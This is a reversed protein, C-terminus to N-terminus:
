GFQEGVDVSNGLLFSVGDMAKKGQPQISDLRLAGEGAAIVFGERSNAELVQGASGAGDTLSVRHIKLIGSGWETFAGPFPNTGRVLNRIEDASRSWDIRGSEKTLKPAPTSVVDDQPRPTLSGSEFGDVTECVVDAGDIKLREYLEGATEDPGITVARQILIDGADVMPKLLFTTLGTSNEGNIVAWQIPAAGRYKPLLSPHLNISGRPPIKLVSRPLILFAVVVFLDAGLSRLEDQFAEDRLSDPQLIPFGLAEAAVKVEPSALRRGRGRSTDPRTVVGAIEHDSRALRDLTPVAFDPTGMFVLRM